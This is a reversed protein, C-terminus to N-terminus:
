FDRSHRVPLRIRLWNPELVLALSLARELVDTPSAAESPEVDFPYDENTLPGGKELSSASLSASAGESGRFAVPADASPFLASDAVLMRIISDVFPFVKNFLANPLVFAELIADPATPRTLHSFAVSRGYFANYLALLRQGLANNFLYVSPYSGSYFLCCHHNPPLRIDPSYADPLRPPPAHMDKNAFAKHVLRDNVVAGGVIRGRFLAGHLAARRHSSVGGAAAPVVASVEGSAGGSSPVASPPSGVGGRSGVSFSVNRGLYRSTGQRIRRRILQLLRLDIKVDAPFVGMWEQVGDGDADAALSRHHAKGGDSGDGGTGNAGDPTNTHLFTLGSRYLTRMTGFEELRHFVSNREEIAETAEDSDENGDGFGLGASYGPMAWERLLRGALFTRGLRGESVERMTSDHLPPAEAPNNEAKGKTEAESELERRLSRTMQSPLLRYSKNVHPNVAVFALRTRDREWREARLHRVIRRTDDAAVSPDAYDAATVSGSGGHLTTANLAGAGAGIDADLRPIWGWNIGRLLRGSLGRQFLVYLVLDIRLPCGGAATSASSSSGCGSRHGGVSLSSDNVTQPSAEDVGLSLSLGRRRGRRKAVGGNSSGDAPSEVFSAEHQQLRLRSRERQRALFAAENEPANNDLALGVDRWLADMTDAPSQSQPPTPAVATPSGKDGHQQGVHGGGRVEAAPSPSRKRLRLMADSSLPPPMQRTGGLAMTLAVFAVVVLAVMALGLRRTANSAHGHPGFRLSNAPRESISHGHSAPLGSRPLM